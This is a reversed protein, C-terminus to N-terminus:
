PYGSTEGNFGPCPGDISYRCASYHGSNIGEKEYILVEM